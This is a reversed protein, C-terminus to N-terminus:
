VVASAVGFGVFKNRRGGFWLGKGLAIGIVFSFASKVAMETAKAATM